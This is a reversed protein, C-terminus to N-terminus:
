FMSKIENLNQVIPCHDHLPEDHSNFHIAQMGTNLAGLVDAELCDGIMLSKEALTGSQDLAYEFIFPHPKKYGVKEATFVNEFYPSLGSNKMKHFQVADFGNSIIHLRYKSQLSELLSISGEFLNSFTSLYLIYKDSLLGINDLDFEYDVSQFTKILRKHRLETQSIKNERYLKWYEHNIGEYADLFDGLHLDINLQKFIKEFTLASNKEFDWLTHDLDFFM